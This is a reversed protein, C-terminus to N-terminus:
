QEAIIIVSLVELGGSATALAPLKDNTTPGVRWDPQSAARPLLAGGVM